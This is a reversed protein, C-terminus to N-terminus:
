LALRRVFKASNEEIECHSHWYSVEVLPRIEMELYRNRFSHEGLFTIEGLYSVTKPWLQRNM